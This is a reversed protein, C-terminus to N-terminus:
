NDRSFFEEKGDRYIVKLGEVSNNKKMIQVQRDFFSPMMFKDQSLPLLKYIYGNYNKYYFNDNKKFIARDGYKGIYTDLVPMTREYKENQIFELHKIFDALYYHDPNSAYAERFTYLAETKNGANLLSMAELILSDEKWVISSGFQDLTTKIVKGQDNKVFTFAATGNLAIFKTESVPYNFIPLQNKAQAVLHNKHEYFSVTMEGKEFRYYGTFPKLFESNVPNNQSFSINDFMKSWDKENEPQILIAKQFMRKANEPDNKHLYMQGMLLLADVNESNAKLLRKLVEMGKDLKGARLYGVAIEYFYIPDDPVLEALQELAREFKKDFLLKREYLDVLDNLISADKPKLEHQMEALAVAKDNEGRILYYLIRISINNYEPLRQRHRMAQNIDSLSSEHCAQFTYNNLALNYLAMAFTSDLEISRHLNITLSDTYLGRVYYRFADISNTSQEKFPLDSSSGIISNSVGLDIRTQISISDIINFFNNGIFIREAVVTGNVTTYLKSTVEYKRGEILFGGTLFYPYNYARAVKIQEQLHKADTNVGTTIYSFQGLDQGIADAFGYQLWNGSSDNAENIFPFIVLRSVFSEKFIRRVEKDGDENIVTVPVTMANMSNRSGSIKPYIFIAAILLLVVVVILGILFNKRSIESSKQKIVNRDLERAEKITEIVQDKENVNRVPETRMGIIIEKVARAVKNVQDRYFTKNLNDNPHDENARLPRSVGSSTSFVFDMPRLVSGTEQEFLKIDEQELDHIRIPLIRSAVNGSRLTVDKGYRDSETMKIFPLFEYQWAYSDPDCYTQSLIPIVILCKLKRELTKDVNHTEQLRDHPNEDFYVSVDEKFTSELETKLADVFESVWKDGKNDKQRYSIFIDYEYGPIISAM